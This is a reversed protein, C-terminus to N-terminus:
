IGFNNKRDFSDIDYKIRLMMKLIYIYIYINGDECKGSQYWKNCFNM